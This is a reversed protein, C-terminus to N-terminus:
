LSIVNTKPLETSDTDDGKELTMKTLRLLSGTALIGKSNIDHMSRAYLSRCAESAAGFLEKQDKNSGGILCHGLIRLVPQLLEWPLAIRGEKKTANKQEETVLKGDNGGDVQGLRSPESEAGDKYMEGDQGAWVKCFECFDIKSGDPMQSIKHYYLEFALGVIRARRTSRMTGHPELSPSIVAVNLGTANNKAPAQVKSEHYISPQSLDPTTITVAQGGRSTTEHAYLALLVAEFGVQPKRLAIRSLYVGAIIPVFRLVLLQLDPVGSQFTDYLWRCLNNDGSGSNPSRLLNTIHSSVDHDHLLSLAPNASSSLSPRLPPVISSLSQITSLVKKSYDASATAPEDDPM